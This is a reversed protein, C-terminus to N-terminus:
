VVKPYPVTLFLQIGSAIRNVSQKPMPKFGPPRHKAKCRATCQRKSEFNNVNGGCGGYRFKRCRGVM